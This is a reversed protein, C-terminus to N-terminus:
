RLAPAARTGMDLFKILRVMDVNFAMGRANPQLEFGQTLAREYIEGPFVSSMKFLVRALDDPLVEDSSPFMFPDAATMSLHCNFLLVNGDDTDLSMLSEAYPTPDGDQSEGDSINIVIPPFSQRHDTTWKDLIEYAKYLVGCMPTGGEAKPDVWIPMEAESDFIEGTEEDTIQQTVTEMRFPNEYIDVITVLERGSLNDGLLAPEIIPNADEDTRYGIVGIDMYDRVEPRSAEIVMNQLWANIAKCLQDCKRLPSGGLPEEMSYSQDLLFLFCAKRQRSIEQSYPSM